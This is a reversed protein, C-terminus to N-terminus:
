IGPWCRVSRLPISGVGFAAVAAQFCADYCRNPVNNYRAQAFASEAGRRSEGAKTLDIPLPDTITFPTYEM